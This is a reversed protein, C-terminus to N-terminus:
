SPRTGQGARGEAEDGDRDGLDRDDRDDHPQGEDGSSTELLEEFLSRYHQMGRRMDETSADGSRARTSTTHASRYNDVVGPHEVSLDASRQEFDDVPYGREKMVEQVLHDANALADRPKDVFEAQADRWSREYSERAAPSLSRIEFKDHRKARQALESEAERRGGKSEVAREYEPGFQEQLQESKSEKSRRWVFWLVVIVVIALLIWVWADMLYGGTSTLVSV